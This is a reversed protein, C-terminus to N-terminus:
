LRPGAGPDHGGGGSGFTEYSWGFVGSYFAKAAEVDPTHLVSM